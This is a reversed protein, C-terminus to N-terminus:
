DDPRKKPVFNEDDTGIIKGNCNIEGCDDEAFGNSYYKNDCNCCRDITGCTDCLFIGNFHRYKHQWYDHCLPCCDCLSIYELDKESYSRGFSWARKYDISINQEEIYKEIIKKDLSFKECFKQLAM